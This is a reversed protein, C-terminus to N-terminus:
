LRAPRLGPARGTIPKTAPGTPISLDPPGKSPSSPGPLPPELEATRAVATRMPRYSLHNSRVGSLRSTPPELGGRGVLSGRKRLPRLETPLAGAKCAPHRRNSETLSWWLGSVNSMILCCCQSRDRGTPRVSRRIWKVDNLSIILTTPKMRTHTFHDSLGVAANDLDLVVLWCAQDTTRPLDHPFHVFTKSQFRGGRPM